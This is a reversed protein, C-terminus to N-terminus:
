IPDIELKSYCDQCWGRKVFAEEKAPKKKGCNRCIFFYIKRLQPPVRKPMKNAASKLDITRRNPKTHTRARPPKPSMESSIGIWRLYLKDFFEFSMQGPLCRSDPRGCIACRSM